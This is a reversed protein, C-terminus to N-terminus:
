AEPTVRGRDLDIRMGLQAIGATRCVQAVERRDRATMLPGCYVASPSPLEVLHGGPEAAGHEIYRWEDEYSWDAAKRLALLADAGEFPPNLALHPMQFPQHDYVVPFLRDVLDTRASWNSVDWRICFGGLGAAYHTWMPVSDLRTSFCCIRLHSRLRHTAGRVIPSFLRGYVSTLEQVMGDRFWGPLGLTEGQIMRVAMSKEDRSPDADARIEDVVTRTDFLVASDFPDNFSAPSAAWVRGTRLIELNQETFERYKYLSVPVNARRLQDAVAFLRADLSPDAIMEAFRLKWM